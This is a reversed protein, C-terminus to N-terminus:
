KGLVQVVHNLKTLMGADSAYLIAHRFHLVKIGGCQLGKGFLLGGFTVKMNISVLRRVFLSTIM